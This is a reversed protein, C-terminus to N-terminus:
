TIGLWAIFDGHSTHVVTPCQNTATRVLKPTTFSVQWVIQRRAYTSRGALRLSLASTPAIRISLCLGGAQFYCKACM